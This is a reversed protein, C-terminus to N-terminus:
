RKKGFKRIPSGEGPKMPEVEKVAGQKKVNEILDMVQNITIRGKCKMAEQLKETEPTYGLVIEIHLDPNVKYVEVTLLGSGKELSKITQIEKEDLIMFHIDNGAISKGAGFQLM